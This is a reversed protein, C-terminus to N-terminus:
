RHMINLYLSVIGGAIVISSAAVFAAVVESLFVVVVFEVRDVDFFKETRYGEDELIRTIYTIYIFSSRDFIPQCIYM